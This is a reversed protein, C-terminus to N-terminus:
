ITARNKNKKLFKWVTRWLPQVLRCEWCCHLLAGKEECGRWCKNNMSQKIIAMKAPVISSIENYSQNAYNTINFTKEHVPVQNQNSFM